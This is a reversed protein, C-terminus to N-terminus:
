RRRHSERQKMAEVSIMECRLMEGIEELTAHQCIQQFWMFFDIHLVGEAKQAEVARVLANTRGGSGGTPTVNSGFRDMCPDDAVACHRCDPCM